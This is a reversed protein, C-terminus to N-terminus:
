NGGGGGKVEMIGSPVRLSKKLLGGFYGRRCLHGNNADGRKTSGRVPNESWDDDAGKRACLWGYGPMNKKFSARKVYVTGGGHRLWWPNQEIKETRVGSTTLGWMGRGNTYTM